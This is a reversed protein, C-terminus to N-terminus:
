TRRQVSQARAPRSFLKRASGLVRVVGHKTEKALAQITKRKIWLGAIILALWSYLGAGPIPAPASASSVTPNGATVPYTNGGVAYFISNNSTTFMRDPNTTGDLVNHFAIKARPGSTADLGSSAITILTNTCPMFGCDAFTYTQNLTAGTATINVDSVLNLTRDYTFSGTLTELSGNLVFQSNPAFIWTLASARVASTSAVCVSAAFGFSTLSRVFRSAM